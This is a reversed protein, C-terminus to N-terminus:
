LPNLVSTVKGIIQLTKIQSEPIVIPSYTKNDFNLFLENNNGFQIRVPKFNKNIAVMYINGESLTKLSLDVSIVAGPLITKAMADDQVSFEKIQLNQIDDFLKVGDFDILENLIGAKLRLHILKKFDFGTEFSLTYLYDIDPLRDTEYALLTNRHWPYKRAIESRSVKKERIDFILRCFDSILM